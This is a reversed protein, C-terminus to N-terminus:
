CYQLPKLYKSIQFNESIERIQFNICTCPLVASCFQALSCSFYFWSFTRYIKKVSRLSTVRRFTYRTAPGDGRSLTQAVCSRLFVAATVLQPRCAVSHGIRGALSNCGRGRADIVIREVASSFPQNTFSCVFSVYSKEVKPQLLLGM